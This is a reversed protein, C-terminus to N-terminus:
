ALPLEPRGAPRQGPGAEAAAMAARGRAEFVFARDVPEGHGPVARTDATMLGVLGDLTGAWEAVVSDPGTQPPGASEILDGAFVLDADPVVVLLDGDTHGPGLHVIEVRRDGLDVATAVAVTRRPPTVAAPGLGLAAAAEMAETSALRAPVSEHAVTDLDAFASLGFAHDHHWHTAVVARLPVGAHAEASSRLAAGQAPSSGCDILLAGDRGAVLGVNVTEPEVVGVWVGRALRIWEAPASFPSATTM